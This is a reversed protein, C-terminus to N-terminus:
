GAPAPASRRAESPNEIQTAPAEPFVSVATSGSNPPLAARRDIPTPPSATSTAVARSPTHTELPARPVTVRM